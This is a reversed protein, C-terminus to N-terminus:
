ATPIMAWPRTTSKVIGRARFAALIETSRLSGIASLMRSAVAWAIMGSQQGLISVESAKLPHLINLPTDLLAASGLALGLFFKSTQCVRPCEHSQNRSHLPRSRHAVDCPFIVMCLHRERLPKIIIDSVIIRHTEDIRKDIRKVKSRLAKAVRYRRGGPV